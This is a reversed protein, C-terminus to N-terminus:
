DSEDVARDAVSSDADDGCVIRVRLRGSTARQDQLVDCQAVYRNRNLAGSVAGCQLARWCICVDRGPTFPVRVSGIARIHELTVYRWDGPRGRKKLAITVIRARLRLVLLVGDALENAYAAKAGSAITSRVVCRCQLPSDGCRTALILNEKDVM